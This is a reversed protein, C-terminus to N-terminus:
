ETFAEIKSQISSFRAAIGTRLAGTALNVQIQSCVQALQAALQVLDDTSNSVGFKTVHLETNTAYVDINAGSRIDIDEGSNSSITLKENNVQSYQMPIFIGDMLDYKRISDKGGSDLYPELDSQMVILFGYDGPKTTPVFGKQYALRVEIPEIQIYKTDNNDDLYSRNSLVEVKIKNAGSTAELVKVVLSTNLRNIHTDILTEVTDRQDSLLKYLKM